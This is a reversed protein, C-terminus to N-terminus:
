RISKEIWNLFERSGFDISFSIICPLSYSHIKKIKKEVKKFLSKKTKIFIGWEGIKEIKGQWSFVSKIKFINCCAALKEKVLTQAIKEAEKITPTTTYVIIFKTM